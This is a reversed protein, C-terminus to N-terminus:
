RVSLLTIDFHLIGGAGAGIDDSGYGAKPPIILQRRGGQRMGQVGIDWGQIVEGKGVRFSFSNNSDIVTSKKEGTLKYKVTILSKNSVAVPGDGFIIDKYKVGLRLSTTGGEDSRGYKIEDLVKLSVDKKEDDESSKRISTKGEQKMSLKKEKGSNRERNEKKLRRFKKEKREFKLLEKKEEKKELKRRGKGLKKKEARIEERSKPEEKLEPKHLGLLPRRKPV